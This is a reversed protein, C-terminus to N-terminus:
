FILASTFEMDNNRGMLNRIANTSFKGNMKCKLKGM